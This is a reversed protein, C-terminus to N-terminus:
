RDFEKVSLETWRQRSQVSANNVQIHLGGLSKVTQAVLKEAVAPNEINGGLAVARAAGSHNLERAVKKGEVLDLDQVAVACGTSALARVIGLGIGRAAGTVLAVKGELS